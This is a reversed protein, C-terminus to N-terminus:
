RGHFQLQRGYEGCVLRVSPTAKVSRSMSRSRRTMEHDEGAHIGAEVQEAGKSELDAIRVDQAVGTAPGRSIRDTREDHGGMQETSSLNADNVVRVASEFPQGVLVNSPLGSHRTDLEKGETIELVAHALVDGGDSVAAQQRLAEDRPPGDVVDIGAGDADDLICLRVLGDCAQDLM